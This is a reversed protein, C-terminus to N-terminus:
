LVATAEMEVKANPVFLSKVEVLAMAPYHRGMVRRYAQGLGKLRARYEVIDTVYITLRAITEPAGGAAAVARAVHRLAAEFQEVLDSSPIAGAADCGIQGAVFVTTGPPAVVAHTFGRPAPMGEPNLLRFRSM